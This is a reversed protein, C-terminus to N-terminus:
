LNVVSRVSSCRRLVITPCQEGLEYSPAYQRRIEFGGPNACFLEVAEDSTVFCYRASSNRYANIALMQPVPWGIRLALNELDPAGRNMARWIAAVEVGERANRLLSM